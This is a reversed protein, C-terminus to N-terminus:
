NAGLAAIRAKAADVHPSNPFKTVLDQYSKRAMTIAGTKEAPATLTPAQKELLQGGEWLGESSATPVGEYFSAIKIFYSIAAALAEGKVKPDTAKEYISKQIFGGLLMAKARIEATATPARIIGILMGLAEEGKGEAQLAAAIGYNAEIIKPSWPYFTKLRDFLKGAESLKGREQEIRGLGYLMTAQAEQIPLAAGSPEVGSPIPYDSAIKNFVAEAEDLKKQDALANGYLDLDKPSLIIDPKYAETMLALAKDKDVEYLFAALTFIVKARTAPQTDKFQDAFNQFYEEVQKPTKLQSALLVRQTELLSGLALAVTPSQPFAALIKEAPELSKDMWDQWQPRQEDNLAIYRGLLNAKGRWLESLKLLAQPTEDTAPYKAAFESYTAVAEDALGLAIQSQGITDYAPFVKKDQPFKVVFEKMMAILDETKQDGALIQAQQFYAFSATETGPFKEATQKFTAMAGAKDGSALRAQALTFLAAGGLQKDDPYAVTFKELETVAAKPDGKQLLCFGIFFASQRVADEQGAFSAVVKRYQEIAQDWRSTDKYINAIGLEAQVAVNPPASTNKALYDAYTKLAEDHKGLSALANAQQVVALQNFESKPYIESQEALYKTGEEARGASILMTGMALPLNSAIEHGRYKTQFQTYNELAKDVVGQLSYTMTIYYLVQRQTEEKEASKSVHRMVVRAADYDGLQYFIIGVKVQAALTQDERDRLQGLKSSEREFYRQLSAIAQKNASRLIAPRSDQIEKLRLEQAEIMKAKPEVARYATLASNLFAARAADDTAFAARNFRVEALQFIADNALAIDTRKNHIESLVAESETFFKDAAATATKDAQLTTAAKSALALGLLYQSDLITRSQPFTATNLRLDAIAEDLKGIQYHALARGYLGSEIGEDKPFKEIYVTYKAIADGFLKIRKADGPPFEGAQAAFIQPLVSFGIVQLAEPASPEMIKNMFEIAKPYNGALFNAYGARMQAEPVQPSTPYDTLVKEFGAAAEKFKGEDFLLLYQAIAAEAGTPQQARVAPAAFGLLIATAFSILRLFYPYSMTAPM